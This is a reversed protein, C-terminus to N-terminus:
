NQWLASKMGKGSSWTKVLTDRFTGTYRHVFFGKLHRFNQAWLITTLFQIKREVHKVKYM